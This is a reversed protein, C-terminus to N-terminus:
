KLMPIEKKEELRQTASIKEGLQRFGFVVKELQRFANQFHRHLLSINEEVQQYDKQVGRLMALIQRAKQEIRQGEFSALIAKLYAYFTSPSVPLVRKKGAYDFLDPNNVVEYYVAESPLYMLAYDITGEETLIYKGAINDIHNKVDRIFNKEFVKKEEESKANTMKRFNELPFKSDVPIIGSTTKIAADVTVGNRFTYQLHFAQKPLMQNLLEKLVQEGINGRIKPSRLFEQLDKMGRGIEKIEGLTKQVNFIVETTKELRQSILQSSQQNISQQSKLWEILTNDPQTIKEIQSLKKLIMGVAVILVGVLVLLLILFGGEM